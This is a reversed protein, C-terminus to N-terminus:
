RIQSTRNNEPCILVAFNEMRNMDKLKYFLFLGVERMSYAYVFANNYRVQQVLSLTDQYQEETEGCFGLILDTSLAIRPLFERIRHVLELYAERSYGRRMKALIESNGSQAPLHIHKCINPRNKIAELVKL